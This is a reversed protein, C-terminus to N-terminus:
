KVDISINSCYPCINYETYTYAAGCNFCREKYITLKKNSIIEAKKSDLMYDNLYRNKILRTILIVVRKPNLSLNVSLANVSLINKYTICYFVEKLSILRKYKIYVFPLAILCSAATIFFVIGMADSKFTVVGLVFLIFAIPFGFILGRFFYKTGAFDKFFDRNM